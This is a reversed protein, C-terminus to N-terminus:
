SFQQMEAVAASSSMEHSKQPFVETLHIIAEDPAAAKNACRFTM